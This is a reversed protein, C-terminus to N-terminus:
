KSECNRKIHNMDKEQIPKNTTLLGRTRPLALPHSFASARGMLRKKEKAKAGGVNGSLSGSGEAQVVAKEPAKAPLESM